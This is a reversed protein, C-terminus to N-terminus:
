QVKELILLPYIRVTVEHHSGGQTLRSVYTVSGPIPSGPPLDHTNIGGLSAECAFRFAFYGGAHTQINDLIVSPPLHFRDSLQQRVLALTAPDECDPPVV